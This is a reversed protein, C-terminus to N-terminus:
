NERRGKGNICKIFWRNIPNRLHNRLFNNQCRNVKTLAIVIIKSNIYQSLYITLHKVSLNTVYCM